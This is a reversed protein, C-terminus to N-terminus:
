SDRVMRYTPTGDDLEGALRYVSRRSSVYGATGEQRKGRSGSPDRLRIRLPPSGDPGASVRTYEGGRPGDDIFVRLDRIGGV